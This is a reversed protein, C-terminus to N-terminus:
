FVGDCEIPSCAELGDDAGRRPHDRARPIHGAGSRWVGGLLRVQRRPVLIAAGSRPRECAPDMAADALRVAPTSSSGPAGCTVQPGDRGKAIKFGSTTDSARSTIAGPPQYTDQPAALGPQLWGIIAEHAQVWGCGIRVLLLEFFEGAQAPVVAHFQGISAQNGAELAQIDQAVAEGLKRKWLRSTRRLRRAWNGSGASRRPLRASSMPAQSPQNVKSNSRRPARTIATSEVAMSRKRTARSKSPDCASYRMSSTQRREGAFIPYKSITINRPTSYWKFCGMSASSFTHSSEVSTTQTSDNTVSSPASGAAGGSM